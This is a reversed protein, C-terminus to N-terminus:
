SETVQNLFSRRMEVDKYPLETDRFADLLEKALSETLFSSSRSLWTLIDMKQKLLLNKNTGFEGRKQQAQYLATEKAIKNRM